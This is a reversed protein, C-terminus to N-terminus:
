FDFGSREGEESPTKPFRQPLNNISLDSSHKRWNGNSEGNPQQQHALGAAVIRRSPSVTRDGSGNGNNTSGLNSSSAGFITSTNTVGGLVNMSSSQNFSLIGSSSHRQPGAVASVAAVVPNSGSRRGSSSSNRNQPSVRINTNNNNSNNNQNMSSSSMLVGVTSGRNSNNSNGQFGVVGGSTSINNESPSIGFSLSNNQNMIQQLSGSFSNQHNIINNNNNNTYNLYHHGQQPSVIQPGLVSDFVVDLATVKRSPSFYVSHPQHHHHSNAHTMGRGSSSSYIGNMSNNYYLRSSSGGHINNVNSGSTVSGSLAESAFSGNKIRSERPTPSTRVPIANQFDEEDDDNNNNSNNNLMSSDIYGRSTSGIAVPEGTDLQLAVKRARTLRPTSTNSRSQQLYSSNMLDQHQLEQQQQQDLLNLNTNSASSQPTQSPNTATSIINQHNSTRSPSMRKLDYFDDNNSVAPRLDSNQFNNYNYNNNNNSFAATSSSENSAGQFSSTSRQAGSFGTSTVERGLPAVGTSNGFASVSENRATTTSTNNMDKGNANSNSSTTATSSSSVKRRPLPPAKVVSADIDSGLERQSQLRRRQSEIFSKLQVENQRRTPSKMVSRDAVHNASTRTLTASHSRVPHHHHHGVANKNEMKAAAKILAEAESRLKAAMGRITASRLGHPSSEDQDFGRRLFPQQPQQQQKQQQEEQLKRVALRERISLNRNSTGEKRQASLEHIKADKYGMSVFTSLNGKNNNNNRSTDANIWMSGGAANSTRPDVHTAQENLNIGNEKAAEIRARVKDRTSSSRYQQKDNQRADAAAVVISSDNPNYTTFSNPQKKKNKNLAQFLPPSSLRLSFEVSQSRTPSM